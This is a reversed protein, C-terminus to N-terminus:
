FLALCSLLWPLFALLCCGAARHRFPFLPKVQLGPHEPSSSPLWLFVGLGGPPIARNGSLQSTRQEQSWIASSKWFTSLIDSEQTNGLSVAVKFCFIFHRSQTRVFSIKLMISALFFFLVLKCHRLTLFEESFTLLFLSLFLPSTHLKLFPLKLLKCFSYSFFYTRIAITEPLFEEPFCFLQCYRFFNAIESTAM